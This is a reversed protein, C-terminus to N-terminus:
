EMWNQCARIVIVVVRTGYSLAFVIYDYHM